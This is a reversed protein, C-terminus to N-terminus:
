IRTVDVLALKTVCQKIENQSAQVGFKVKILVSWVIRTNSNKRKAKKKSFFFHYLADVGLDFKKSSLKSCGELKLQFM